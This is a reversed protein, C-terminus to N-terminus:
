LMELIKGFSENHYLYNIAEIAEKLKEKRDVSFNFNIANGELFEPISLRIYGPVKISNLKGKIEREKKYLVPYRNEKVIQKIKELKQSHTLKKNEQVDKIGSISLFKELTINDRHIIEELYTLIIRLNSGKMKLSKMLSYILTLESPEFRFFQKIINPHLDNEVIYDKINEDLKCLHFYVDSYYGSINFLPFYERIVDAKKLSFDNVLKNLVISIEVINLRNKETLTDYLKKQFINYETIDESNYIISEFKQIGIKMGAFVRKRGDVVILNDKKKYLIVPMFIGVKKVSSIINENVGPYAFDFLKDELDIKSIHVEKFIKNM